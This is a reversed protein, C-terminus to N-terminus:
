DGETWPLAHWGYALLGATWTALLLLSGPALGQGTWAQEMLEASLTPPLLDVVPRIIAPVREVPYLLPCFAMSGLVVLNSLMSVVPLSRAYAGVCLSLGILSVYGLVFPVVWASSAPLSVHFLPFALALVTLPLVVQTLTHLVHGGLYGSRTLATTAVLDRQGSIRDFALENALNRTVMLVSLFVNGIVLRTRAPGPLRQAYIALTILPLGVGFFANTFWFYRTLRLQLLLLGGLARVGSGRRAGGRTANGIATSM